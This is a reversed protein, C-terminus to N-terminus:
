FTLWEKFIWSLKRNQNQYEDTIINKLMRTNSLFRLILLYVITAFGM